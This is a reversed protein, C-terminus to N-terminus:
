QLKPDVGVDKLTEVRPRRTFMDGRIPDPMIEHRDSDQVHAVKRFFSKKIFKDTEEVVHEPEVVEPITERKSKKVFVNPARALQHLATYIGFGVSTAIMGVAVFVPVFGGKAAKSKITPSNLMDIAPSYAKMKPSTSTTFNSSGRLRNSLSKWYASSRFAM